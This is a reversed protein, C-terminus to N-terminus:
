RAGNVGVDVSVYGGIKICTSSGAVQVFVPGYEACPKSALARSSKVSKKPQGSPQEAAAVWAPLMVVLLALVMTKM